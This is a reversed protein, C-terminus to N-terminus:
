AGRGTRRRGLRGGGQTRRRGSPPSPGSSPRPARAARRDRFRARRRRPARAPLVAALASPRRAPARRRRPGPAGRGRGAGRGAGTVSGGGRPRATPGLVRRGARRRARPAGRTVACSPREVREAPPFRAPHASTPGFPVVLVLLPPVDESAASPGSSLALCSVGPAPVRRRNDGTKTPSASTGLVSAPGSMVPPLPSPPLSPRRRVRPSGKRPRYVGVSTLRTYTHSFICVCM